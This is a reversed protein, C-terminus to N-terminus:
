HRQPPARRAGPGRGHGDAWPASASTSSPPGAWRRGGGRGSLGRGPSSRLSIEYIYDPSPALGLVLIRPTPPALSPPTPGVSEALNLVAHSWGSPAYVLDGGTQVCESMVAARGERVDPVYEDRAWRLAQHTSYYADPPPLMFWRKRGHYLANWADRHWHRGGRGAGPGRLGAMQPAAGDLFGRHSTSSRAGPLGPDPARPTHSSPRRVDALGLGGPRPLVALDPQRPGARRRRARRRRRRHAGQPGPGGQEARRRSSPPAADEPAPWPRPGPAAV